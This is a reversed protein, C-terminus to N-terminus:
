FAVLPISARLRRCFASLQALPVLHGFAMAPARLALGRLWQQFERSIARGPAAVANVALGAVVRFTAGGIDPQVASGAFIVQAASVPDPLGLDVGHQRRLAADTSSAVGVLRVM